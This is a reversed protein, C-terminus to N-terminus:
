VFTRLLLASDGALDGHRSKHRGILAAAAAAVVTTPDALNAAKLVHRVLCGHFQKPLLHPHADHCNVGVVVLLHLLRVADHAANDHPHEAKLLHVDPFALHVQHVAVLVCRVYHRLAHAKAEAAAGIGGGELHLVGAPIAAAV